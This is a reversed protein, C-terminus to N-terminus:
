TSIMPYWPSSQVSKRKMDEEKFHVYALQKNTSDSVWGLTDEQGRIEMTGIGGCGAKRCVLLLSRKRTKAGNFTM